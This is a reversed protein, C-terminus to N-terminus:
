LERIYSAGRLAEIQVYSHAYSRSTASLPLPCRMVVGQRLGGAAAGGEGCLVNAVPPKKVRALPLPVTSHLRIRLSEWTGSPWTGVTLPKSATIFKSLLPKSIRFVSSRPLVSSVSVNANRHPKEASNMARELM